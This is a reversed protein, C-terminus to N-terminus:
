TCVQNVLHQGKCRTNYFLSHDDELIREMPLQEQWLADCHTRREYYEKVSYSTVDEHQLRKAGIKNQLKKGFQEYWMPYNFPLGNKFKETEVYDVLEQMNDLVDAITQHLGDDEGQLAGFGYLLNIAAVGGVIEDTWDQGCCGFALRHRQQAQKAHKGDHLISSEGKRLVLKCIAPLDMHLQGFIQKYLDGGSRVVTLDEMFYDAGLLIHM